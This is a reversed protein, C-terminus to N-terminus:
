QHRRPCRRPWPSGADRRRSRRPRGPPPASAARPPRWPRDPAAPRWSTRAGASRDCRRDVTRRAASRPRLDARPRERRAAGCRPAPRCTRSTPNLLARCSCSRACTAMSSRSRRYAVGLGAALLMPLDNAGDGVALTEPAAIGYRAGLKELMALKTEPGVIPPIVRGTLRGGAVELRNAEVVDFGVERGIREALPMFGGSVLGTVAGYARMTRVLTTAGPMLRARERHIDEFVSEPLGELLAVRAELAPGFALEGRMARRTIAAVETKVGVLDALEDITEITIITSDLDCLLLRKIRDVAPVACADIARGALEARTLALSEAPKPGTVALECAEGEALWRPTARLMRGIQTMLKQDLTEREPQAILCIMHDM